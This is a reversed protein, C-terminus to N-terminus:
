QRDLLEAVMRVMAPLRFPEPWVSNTIGAEVAAEACVPGICAPVVRGANFAALLNDAAGMSEAIRFLFRVAPQSTFTVAGLAGAVAANILEKAASADDPLLWKYVPVEVVTGAVARLATTAPHEDPDFLQLAVCGEAVGPAASMWEIVEAM